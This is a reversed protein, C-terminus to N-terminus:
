TVSPNKYSELVKVGREVKFTVPGTPHEKIYKEFDTYVAKIFDELKTYTDELDGSLVWAIPNEKWNVDPNVPFIRQFTPHTFVDRQELIQHLEEPIAVSSSIIRIVQKLREVLIDNDNVELPINRHQHSNNLIWLLESAFYSLTLYFSTLYEESNLFIVDRLDDTLFRSRNETGVELDRAKKLSELINVYAKETKGLLIPWKYSHTFYYRGWRKDLASLVPAVKAGKNHVKALKPDAINKLKKGKM